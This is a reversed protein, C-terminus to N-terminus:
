KSRSSDGSFRSKYDEGLEANSRFKSLFLARIGMLAFYVLIFFILGVVLRSGELGAPLLLSAYTAFLLILFHCVYRLAPKLFSLKLFGNAVAFLLSFVFFLVIRGADVLIEDSDVTIILVILSYIATMLTFVVCACTLAKKLIAKIDM